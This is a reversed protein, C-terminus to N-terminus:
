GPDDRQNLQYSTGEALVAFVREMAIGRSGKVLLVDGREIMDALIKGAAVSDSATKWQHSSPQANIATRFEPGTLICAAPRSTAIDRLAQTHMEASLAGLELMDGLALMLRANLADAIERATNLAARLSRPNSNYSDDILFIGDREILKLRGDVPRVQELERSIADLDQNTLPRAVAAAGAAVAAAANLASTAGLLNLNIEFSSNTGQETLSGRLSLRIAQGGSANISREVLRVDAEPSSGFTTVPQGPPVRKLLLPEETGVVATHATTFLTSEEDAVGEVSGLGETHEIDVNLVLAADPRVIDALCAIEGRQNTGCELVVARYGGELTFITMPVGIRNNLNGPTALTKGCLARMVAATLEKTTTKGAAGGIAVASLPHSRRVRALHTRALAGLASLTEPVEICPLTSVSRGQEVIAAVAGARKAAELFEHGDRVSRLAVFLAGPKITRSDISVSTVNFDGGDDASANIAQIIERRTFGCRNAPIPTAM